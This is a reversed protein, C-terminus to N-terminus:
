AAGEALHQGCEQQRCNQVLGPVAPGEQLVSCCDKSGAWRGARGCKGAREERAACQRRRDNLLRGAFGVM